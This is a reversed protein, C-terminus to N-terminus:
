PNRNKKKTGFLNRIGGRQEWTNKCLESSIISSASASVAALRRLAAPIVLSEPRRLLMPILVSHVSNWGRVGNWIRELDPCLSPRGSRGDWRYFQVDVRHKRQWVGGVGHCSKQRHRDPEGGDMNKSHDRDTGWLIVIERPQGIGLQKMKPAIRSNHPIM